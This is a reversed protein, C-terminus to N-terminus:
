EDGGNLKLHKVTNSNLPVCGDPLEQLRLKLRLPKGDGQAIDGAKEFAELEARDIAVWKDITDQTLRGANHLKKGPVRYCTAHKDLLDTPETVFYEDHILALLHEVDTMQGATSHPLSVSLDNLAAGTIVLGYRCPMASDVGRLVNYVFLDNPEDYGTILVKMSM